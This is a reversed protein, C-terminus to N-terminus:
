RILELVEVPHTVLHKAGNEELERAPRFGWLAGVALMDAAVATQMDTATDGLYLIEAPSLSLLNAIELAGAPDPKKPVGDRNGLVHVFTDSGFFERVCVKTFDDPKNSLINMPLDKSKLGSLMEEIGEYPKTKANWNTAYVERFSEAMQRVKETSRMDEPLIRQILTILGDGVFYRYSDTTHVPLGANALVKNGADALDVLTDLLTGDLDFIIAKCNMEDVFNTKPMM